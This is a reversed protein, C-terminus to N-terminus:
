IMAYTFQNQSNKKQRKQRKEQEIAAREAYPSEWAVARIPATAALLVPASSRRCGIGCNM